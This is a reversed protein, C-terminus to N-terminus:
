YRLKIIPMIINISIYLAWRFIKYNDFRKQILLPLLTLAIFLYRLDRARAQLIHFQPPTSTLSAAPMTRPSSSLLDQSSTKHPACNGKSLIEFCLWRNSRTKLWGIFRWCQCAEFFRKCFGISGMLHVKWLTGSQFKWDWTSRRQCIATASLHRRQALHKSIPWCRSAHLFQSWISKESHQLRTGITQTIELLHGTWALGLDWRRIKCNNSSPLLM